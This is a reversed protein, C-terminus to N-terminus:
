SSTQCLKSRIKNPTEPDDLKKNSVYRVDCVPQYFCWLCNTGARPYFHGLEIGKIAHRIWRMASRGAQELVKYRALKPIRPLYVMSSITKAIQRFHQRLEPELGYKHLIFGFNRSVEHDTPARVSMLDFSIIQIERGSKGKDKQEMIRIVPVEGYITTGEIERWCPYSVGLVGMTPKIGEFMKHVHRVGRNRLKTMEGLDAGYRKGVEGWRTEWEIRLQDWIVPKKEHLQQYMWVFVDGLVSGWLDNPSPTRTDKVEYAHKFAYM